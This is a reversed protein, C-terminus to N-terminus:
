AQRGWDPGGMTRARCGALYTGPNASRVGGCHLATPPPATDRRTPQAGEGRHPLLPEPDARDGPGKPAEFPGGSCRRDSIETAPDAYRLSQQLLPAAEIQAQLTQNILQEATGLRVKVVRPGLETVSACDADSPEGATFGVVFGDAGWNELLRERLHQATQGISRMEGVFCVAVRGHGDLSGPVAFARAIHQRAHRHTHPRRRTPPPPMTARSSPLHCRAGEDSTSATAAGVLLPILGRKLM